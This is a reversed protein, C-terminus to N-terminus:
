GKPARGASPGSDSPSRYRDDALPALFFLEESRAHEPLTDHVIPIQHAKIAVRKKEVQDPTLPVRVVPLDPQRTGHVIFTHLPARFGAAQAAARVFGFAARHDAHEDLEHTVYIEKPAAKQLIETLDALLAARTIPAPSGHAASHYDQGIISYTTDKGTFPQRLPAANDSEHLKALLSDPYGLFTLNALPLGLIRFGEVSHRQREAALALFDAPTLQDQPTGTLISAAKPYGDGNTLVVVGVTKKAELAQQIVGACGLVEDDPHPAFILLDFPGRHTGQEAPAAAATGCSALFAFATSCRLLLHLLPTTM